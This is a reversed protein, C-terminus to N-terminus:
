LLGLCEKEFNPLLDNIVFCPDAPDDGIAVEVTTGDKKVFV